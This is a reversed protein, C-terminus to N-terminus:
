GRMDDNRPSSPRLLGTDYLTLANKKNQIAKAAWTFDPMAIVV